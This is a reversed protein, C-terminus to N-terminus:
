IHNDWEVSLPSFEWKVTGLGTYQENDEERRWEVLQIMIFVKVVM